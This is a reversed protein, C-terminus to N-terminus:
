GRSRGAQYTNRLERWLWFIVAICTMVIVIIAGMMMSPMKIGSLWKSDVIWVQVEGQYGFQFWSANEQGAFARSVFYMALLVGFGGLIGTRITKTRVSIWYGILYMLINNCIQVVLVLLCNGMISIPNVQLSFYGMAGRYSRLPIWWYQPKSLMGAALMIFLWALVAFGVNLGLLLAHSKMRYAKGQCLSQIYQSTENESKEGWFCVSLLIGALLVLNYPELQFFRTLYEDNLLSTKEQTAYTEQNEIFDGPVNSDFVIADEGNALLILNDAQLKNVVSNRYVDAVEFPLKENWRFYLDLIGQTPANKQAGLIRDLRVKVEKKMPERAYPDNKIQVWGYGFGGILISLILLLLWWKKRFFSRCVM